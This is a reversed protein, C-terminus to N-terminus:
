IGHNRGLSNLVAMFTRFSHHSTPTHYSQLRIRFLELRSIAAVAFTRASMGAILPALTQPIASPISTRLTDYGVFYIVNAPVAMARCFILVLCPLLSICLLHSDEGSLHLVKM